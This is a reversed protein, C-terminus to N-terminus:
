PNLHREIQTLIGRLINMESQLVEARNFLRRIKPMLRKPEDSRMFEVRILVRELHQYFQELGTVTALPEIDPNSVQHQGDWIEYAVIQVAQALNLSRYQPSTPIHIGGHCRWLEENTLGTRERGFVLATKKHGIKHPLAKPHHMPWELDRSRATAGLVLECDGIAQEFSDVVKAKSLIDDAGSAMALAEESPFVKPNVLVLNEIGMTKMARAVSGINGPHSTEVLVIQIHELMLLLLLYISKIM